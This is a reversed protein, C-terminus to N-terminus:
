DVTFAIHMGNKYHNAINCVLQYKGPELKVKFTSTKGVDYEGTEGLNVTKPDDENFRGDSGIPIDGLPLDTRIVLLEHQISGRNTFAFTIEGAKIAKHDAVIKWERESGTVANQSESTGGAVDSPDAGCGAVVASAVVVAAAWKWGTKM